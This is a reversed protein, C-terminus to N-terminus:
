TRKQYKLWHALGTGTYRLIHDWADALSATLTRFLPGCATLTKDPGTKDVRPVSRLALTGAAGTQKSSHLVLLTALAWASQPCYTGASSDSSDSPTTAIGVGNRVLRHVLIHCGALKLRPQQKSPTSSSDSSSEEPAPLPSTQPPLAPCAIDGPPMSAVLAPVASARSPARDLWRRLM